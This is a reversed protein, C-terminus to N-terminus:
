STPDPAPSESARDVIPLEGARVACVISESLAACGLFLRNGGHGALKRLERREGCMGAAEGNWQVSTQDASSKRALVRAACRQCQVSTMPADALRNDARVTM